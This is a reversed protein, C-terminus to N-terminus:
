TVSSGTAAKAGARWARGGAGLRASVAMSARHVARLEARCSRALAAQLSLSVLRARGKASRQRQLERGPPRDILAGFSWWANQGRRLYLKELQGRSDCVAQCSWEEVRSLALERGFRLWVRDDLSAGDGVKTWRPLALELDFATACAVALGRQLDQCAPAGSAFLDQM